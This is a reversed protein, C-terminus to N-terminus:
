CTKTADTRSSPTKSKEEQTLIGESGGGKAFLLWIQASASETAGETGERDDM